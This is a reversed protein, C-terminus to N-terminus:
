KEGRVTRIIEPLEANIAAATAEVSAIAEEVLDRGTTATPVVLSWTPIHRIQVTATVAPHGSRVCPEELRAYGDEDGWGRVLTWDDYSHPIIKSALEGHSVPLELVVVMQDGDENRELTVAQVDPRWDVLGPSMVPPTAVFWAAQAFEIPTLPDYPTRKGPTGGSFNDRFSVERAGVYSGFRSYGDSARERDGERDVHIIKDRHWTRPM